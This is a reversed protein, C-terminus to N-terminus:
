CKALIKLQNRRRENAQKTGLDLYVSVCVTEAGQGGKIQSSIPQKAHSSNGKSSGENKGESQPYALSSSGVWGLLSPQDASLSAPGETDLVM